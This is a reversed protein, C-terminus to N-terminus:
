PRPPQSSPADGRARPMLLEAILSPPVEALLRCAWDMLAPAPRGSALLAGAAIAAGALAFPHRQAIDHLAAPAHEGAFAIMPALSSTAAQPAGAIEREVLWRQMRARSVALRHEVTRASM